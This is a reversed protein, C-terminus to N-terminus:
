KILDLLMPFDTAEGIGWNLKPLRAYGAMLSWQTFGHAPMAALQGNLWEKAEDVSHYRLESSFERITSVLIEKKHVVRWQHKYIFVEDVVPEQEQEQEAEGERERAVRTRAQDKSRILTRDLSADSESELGLDRLTPSEGVRPPSSRIDIAANLARGATQPAARARSKLTKSGGKKSTRKSIKAPATAPAEKSKNAAIVKGTPKPTRAARPMTIKQEDFSPKGGVQNPYAVQFVRRKWRLTAKCAAALEAESQKRYAEDDSDNDDSKAQGQKVPSEEEARPHEIWPTAINRESINEIAWHRNPQRQEAIRRVVQQVQLQIHSNPGQAEAESRRIPIKFTPIFRRSMTPREESALRMGSNVPLKVHQNKIHSSM